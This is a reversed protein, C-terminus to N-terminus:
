SEPSVIPSDLQDDPDKPLAPPDKCVEVRVKEGVQFFM